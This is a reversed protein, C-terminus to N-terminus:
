IKKNIKSKLILNTELKLNGKNIDINKNTKFLYHPVPLNPNSSINQNDVLPEIM